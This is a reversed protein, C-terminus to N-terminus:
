EVFTSKFQISFEIEFSNSKTSVADSAYTINLRKDNLLSSSIAAFLDSNKIEFSVNNNSEKFLDVEMLPSILNGDLFVEINSLNISNANTFNKIKYKISNIDIAKLYVAHEKLFPDEHLLIESISNVAIRTGQTNAINIPLNSSLQDNSYYVVGDQEVTCSSFFILCLVIYGLPKILKM